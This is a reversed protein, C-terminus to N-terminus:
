LGIGGGHGTEIALSSLDGIERRRSSPRGSRDFATRLRVSRTRLLAGWLDGRHRRGSADGCWGSRPGGASHGWEGGYWRVYGVGNRNRETTPRHGSVFSETAPQRLPGVIGSDNASLSRQPAEGASSRRFSPTTLRFFLITSSLAPSQACFTFSTPPMPDPSSM